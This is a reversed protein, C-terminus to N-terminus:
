ATKRGVPIGTPRIKALRPAAPITAAAVLIIGGFAASYCAPRAAGFPAFAAAPRRDTATPLVFLRCPRRSLPRPAAFFACPTHRGPLSLSEAFRFTEFPNLNTLAFGGNRRASELNASGRVEPFPVTKNKESTRFSRPTGWLNAVRQVGPSSEFGKRRRKTRYVPKPEHRRFVKSFDEGASSQISTAPRLGTHKKTVKQM